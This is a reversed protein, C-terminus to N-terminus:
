RAPERIRAHTAARPVHRASGRCSNALRFGLRNSEYNAMRDSEFGADGGAIVDM